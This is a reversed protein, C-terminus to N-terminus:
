NSLVQCAVLKLIECQIVKISLILCSIQFESNKQHVKNVDNDNVYRMTVNKCSDLKDSIFVSAPM